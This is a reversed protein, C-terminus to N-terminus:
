LIRLHPLLALASGGTTIIAQRLWRATSVPYSDLSPQVAAFMAVALAVAATCAVLNVAAALALGDVLVISPALLLMGKATSALVAGTLRAEPEAHRHRVLAIIALNAAFAAAFPYFYDAQGSARYLLLWLLGGVINALAVPFNFARVHDHPTHRTIATYTLIVLFPPVVWRWDALAWVVYGWLSVGFLADDALTTRYRWIRIFLSLSVLFALHQALQLADMPLFMKLLAFSFLPIILNDLGWWAAAEAMMVMLALNVAILLSELRPTDTLLLVPVHVCFFAALFFAASGEVSKRGKWARFRKKGYEAGVLAAFTDAVALVLLPVGYLLEDGKALWFLLCFSAVFCFEGITKRQVGALVQGAGEKLAPVVRLAVFLATTATALGLVPAIERFLLPLSLGFLGGGLHFFKRVLEPEPHALVQWARLVGLMAVVAAFALLAVLWHNMNALATM